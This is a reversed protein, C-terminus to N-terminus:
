LGVLKKNSLLGHANPRRIDFWLANLALISVSDRGVQVIADPMGATMRSVTRWHWHRPREWPQNYLAISVTIRGKCSSWHWLPHSWARANNGWSNISGTCLAWSQSPFAWKLWKEYGESFCNTTICVVPVQFPNTLRFCNSNQPPPIKKYQVLLSPIIIM